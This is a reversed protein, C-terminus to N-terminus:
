YSLVMRSYISVKSLPEIMDGSYNVTFKPMTLTVDTKHLLKRIRSLSVYPLDRLLAECGERDLPVLLIM